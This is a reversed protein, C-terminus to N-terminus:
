RGDAVALGPCRPAPSRALFPRLCDAYKEGTAALVGREVQLYGQFAQLVAQVPDGAMVESVAPPVAGIRRLWGLGPALGGRSVLVVHTRRRDVLFVSIAAETFEAPQLGREGLWRSVHAWLQLHVRVTAPAYGLGFLEARLGDVLPVLPGCFRVRVLGDM